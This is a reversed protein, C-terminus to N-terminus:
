QPWTGMAKRAWFYTWLESFTEATPDLLPQGTAQRWQNVAVHRLKTSAHAGCTGTEGQDTANPMLGRLDIPATPLAAQQAVGFLHDQVRPKTPIVGGFFGQALEHDAM